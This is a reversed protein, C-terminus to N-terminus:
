PHSRGMNKMKPSKKKKKKTKLRFSQLSLRNKDFDFSIKALLKQFHSIKKGFSKEFFLYNKSFTMTKLLTM